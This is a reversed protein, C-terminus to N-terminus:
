EYVYLMGIQKQHHTILQSSVSSSKIAEKMREKKIADNDIFYSKM